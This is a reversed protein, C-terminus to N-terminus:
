ADPSFPVDLNKVQILEKDGLYFLYYLLNWNGQLSELSLQSEWVWDIFFSLSWGLAGREEVAGWGIINMIWSAEM